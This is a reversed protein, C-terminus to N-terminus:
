EDWIRSGSKSLSNYRIKIVPVPQQLQKVGHENKIWGKKVEFTQQNIFLSLFLKQTNEM